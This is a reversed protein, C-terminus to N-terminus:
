FGGRAKIGGLHEVAGSRTSNGGHIVDAVEGDDGVDVVTFGGQGIADDM